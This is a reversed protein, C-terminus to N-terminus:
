TSPGGRLAVIADSLRTGDIAQAGQPLILFYKSFIGLNFRPEFRIVKYNLSTHLPFRRELERELLGRLNGKSSSQLFMEVNLSSVAM